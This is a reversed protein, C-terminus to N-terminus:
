ASIKPGLARKDLPKPAEEGKSGSTRYAEVLRASVFRVVDAKNEAGLKQHIRMLHTRLTPVAICLSAAVREHDGGECIALAVERERPTLDSLPGELFRKEAENLRLRCPNGGSPENSEPGRSQPTMEFSSAGSLGSQHTVTSYGQM